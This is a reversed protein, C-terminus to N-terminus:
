YKMNFNQYALYILMFKLAAKLTTANRFNGQGIMM